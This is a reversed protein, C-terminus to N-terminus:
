VRYVQVATKTKVARALGYEVVVSDGVILAAITPVSVLGRSTAVDMIDGRFGVIKGNVRATGFLAILDTISNGM